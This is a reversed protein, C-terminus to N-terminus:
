ACPTNKKRKTSPNQLEHSENCLEGVHSCSQLSFFLSLHIGSGEGSCLYQPSCPPISGLPFRFHCSGLVVLRETATCVFSIPKITNKNKVTSRLYWKFNTACTFVQTGTVSGVFVWPEALSHNTSIAFVPQRQWLLSFTSYIKQPSRYRRREYMINYDIVFHEKPHMQM